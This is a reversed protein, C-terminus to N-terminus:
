RARTVTFRESLYTLLKARPYNDRFDEDDLLDVLAKLAEPDQARAAGVPKVQVAKDKLSFFPDEPRYAGGWCRVADRIYVAAERASADVTLSIEFTHTKM